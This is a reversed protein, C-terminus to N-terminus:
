YLLHLILEGIAMDLVMCVDKMSTTFVVACIVKYGMEFLIGDGVENRAENEKERVDLFM